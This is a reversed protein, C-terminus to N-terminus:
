WFKPSPLRAKMQSFTGQIGSEPSLRSKRRLKKRTFSTRTQETSITRNWLSARLEPPTCQDFSSLSATRTFSLFEFNWFLACVLLFPDFWLRFFRRLIESSSPSGKEKWGFLPKTASFNGKEGSIARGRFHNKAVPLFRSICPPVCFFVWFPAARM